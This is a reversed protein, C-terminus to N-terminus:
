EWSRSTEPGVATLWSPPAHTSRTSGSRASLTRTPSWMCLESVLRTSGTLSRTTWTRSVYFAPQTLFYGNKFAVIEAAHNEVVKNNIEPRVLKTRELVPQIGRRYWYLYEEEMSNLTHVPLITNLIEIINDRTIDETTCYVRRRGVYVGASTRPAQQTTTTTQAM